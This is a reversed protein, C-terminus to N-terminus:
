VQSGQAPSGVVVVPLVSPLVEVSESPDEVPPVTCPHSRFGPTHSGEAICSVSATGQQSSGSQAQSVLSQACAGHLASPYQSQRHVASGSQATSWHALGMWVAGPTAVASWHGSLLSGSTRYM